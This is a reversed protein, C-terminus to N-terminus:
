EKKNKEHKMLHCENCLSQLNNYDFGLFQIQQINLGTMFPTIHHVEIAVSVKGIAECEECLPNNILKITRLKAWNSTNYVYKQAIKKQLNKNPNRKQKPKNITPM